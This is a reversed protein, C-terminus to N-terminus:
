RIRVSLRKAWSDTGSLMCASLQWFSKGPKLAQAGQDSSRLVPSDGPVWLVDRRTSSSLPAHDGFDTDGM